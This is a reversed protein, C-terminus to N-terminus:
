QSERVRAEVETYDEAEHREDNCTSCLWAGDPWPYLTWDPTFATKTKCNTCREPIVAPKSFWTSAICDLCTCGPNSAQHRAFTDRSAIAQQQVTDERLEGDKYAGAMRLLRLCARLEDREERSGEYFERIRDREKSVARALVTRQITNM